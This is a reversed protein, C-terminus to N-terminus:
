IVIDAKECPKCEAFYKREAPFYRNNYKDRIQQEDGIYGDRKLVRELRVDESIDIYIVFDFINELESRQLFVGEVIVATGSPVNLNEKFYTDNEKDYLEIEGCYAGGAKIPKVVKEILYDYRWQLKYYCEWEEYANNYRVSKPHIFDDIHLVAANYGLAKLSDSLKESITSKGAGGLGDIGIFITKGSSLISKIKDMIKQM